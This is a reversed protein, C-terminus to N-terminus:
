PIYTYFGYIEIDTMTYMILSLYRTNLVFYKLKFVYFIYWTEFLIKLIFLFLNDYFKNGDWGQM